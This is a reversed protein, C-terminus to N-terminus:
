PIGSGRPRAVSPVDVKIKPPYAKACRVQYRTRSLPGLEFHLKGNLLVLPIRELGDPGLGENIGLGLSPCIMEVESNHHFCFRSARLSSCEKRWRPLPSNPHSRCRHLVLALSWAVDVILRPSAAERGEKVGM